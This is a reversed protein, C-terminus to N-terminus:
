SLKFVIPLTFRVKVARGGQKGPKWNPMKLIARIAADTCGGGITRIPSIDSISGDENIVFQLVVKGEINEERAMAPYKVNESLFKMLAATGKPFEPMEEAVLLVKNTQDEMNTSTPLAENVITHEIIAVPNQIGDQTTNSIAATKLEETTAIPTQEVVKNDKEVKPEVFTKTAVKETKSSPQKIPEVPKAKKEFLEIDDPYLDIVISTLPTPSKKPLMALLTLFSLTGALVWLFSKQITNDYSTRLIYAGYKKNRNEFIIDDLRAELIEQAKM